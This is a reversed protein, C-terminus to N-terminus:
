TLSKLTEDVKDQEVWITRYGISGSEKEYPVVLKAMQRTPEAGRNTRQNKSIKRRGM